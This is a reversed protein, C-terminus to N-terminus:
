KGLGALSPSLFLSPSPCSSPFLSLLSFPCSVFRLVEPQGEAATQHNSVAAAAARCKGHSFRSFSKSLSTASTLCRLEKCKCGPQTAQRTANRLLIPDKYCTSDEFRSCSLSLSCFILLLLNVKNRAACLLKQWLKGSWSISCSNRWDRYDGKTAPLPIWCSSASTPTGPSTVMRKRLASRVLHPELARGEM